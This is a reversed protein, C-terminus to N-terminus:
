PNNCLIFKSKTSKIQNPLPLIMWSNKQWNVDRITMKAVFFQVSSFCGRLLRASNRSQNNQPCKQSLNPRNSPYLHPGDGGWPFNRGPGSLPATEFTFWGPRVQRLIPPLVWFELAFWEWGFCIYINQFLKFCGEKHCFINCIQTSM